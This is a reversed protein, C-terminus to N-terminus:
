EILNLSKEHVFVKLTQNSILMRVDPASIQSNIASLVSLLALNANQTMSLIKTYALAVNVLVNAM